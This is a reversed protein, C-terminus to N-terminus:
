QLQWEARKRLSALNPLVPPGGIDASTSESRRAEWQLGGVCCGRSQVVHGLVRKSFVLSGGIDGSTANKKKIGEPRENYVALVAAKARYWRALCGSTCSSARLSTSDTTPFSPDISSAASCFIDKMLDHKLSVVLHTVATQPSVPTAM